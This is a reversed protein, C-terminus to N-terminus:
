SLHRVRVTNLTGDFRFPARDHHDLSVPIGIEFCDSATLLLPASLPARGTALQEGNASTTVDLADGSRTEAYETQIETTIPGTPLPARLRARTRQRVFLTCEYCLHGDDVGVIQGDGIRPPQARDPDVGADTLM